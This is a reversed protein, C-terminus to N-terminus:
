VKMVRVVIPNPSYIPPLFIEIGIFQMLIESNIPWSEYLIFERFESLTSFVPFLGRKVIFSWKAAKTGM